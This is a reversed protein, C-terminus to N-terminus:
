GCVDTKWLIDPYALSGSLRVCMSTSYTHMVYATFRYGVIKKRIALSGSLRPGSLRPRVTCTNKYTCTSTCTSTCLIWYRYTGKLGKSCITSLVRVLASRVVCPLVVSVLMKEDSRTEHEFVRFESHRSIKPRQQEVKCVHGCLPQRCSTSLMDSSELSPMPPYHEFLHCIRSSFCHFQCFWVFRIAPM